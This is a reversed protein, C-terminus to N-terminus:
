ESLSLSLGWLSGCLGCGWLLLGFSLLIIAWGINRREVLRLAGCCIFPFAVCYYAWWAGIFSKRVVRFIEGLVRTPERNESGGQDDHSRKLEESEEPLAPYEGVVAIAEAVGNNLHSFRDRGVSSVAVESRFGIFESALGDKERVSWFQDDNSDLNVTASSAKQIAGCRWPLKPDHVHPGCWGTTDRDEGSSDERVLQAHDRDVFPIRTHMEIAFEMGSLRAGPLKALVVARKSGAVNGGDCIWPVVSPAEVNDSEDPVAILSGRGNHAACGKAADEVVLRPTEMGNLVGVVLVCVLIKLDVRM